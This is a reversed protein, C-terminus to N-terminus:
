MIFRRFEKELEAAEQDIKKIIQAGTELQEVIQSDKSVELFIAALAEVDGPPYLFGNKGDEIIEPVGAIETAVVPVNAALAERLVFPYNEGISSMVLLDIESFVRPRDQPSFGGKYEVNKLNKIRALMEHYLDNNSHHGYIVFELDTKSKEEVCEKQYIEIATLFDLIGKRADINGLFAIRTVGDEKIKKKLVGFPKIGTPIVKFEDNEFDNEICANKLYHSPSHVFDINRFIEQLYARRFALYRYAEAIEQPPSAKKSAFVCEFCKDISEPGSCHTENNQLLHIQRCFFFMDDIKLFVPLGFNKAVSIWSASLGYVHQFHVLDFDHSNLYQEFFRDYQPNFFDSRVQEVPHYVNFQVIKLGEYVTNEFSYLERDKFVVPYLIVVDHGLKQLEKSLNLTYLETGSFSSPPFDHVIQLIKFKGNKDNSIK